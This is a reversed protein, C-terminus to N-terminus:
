AYAAEAAVRPKLDPGAPLHRGPLDVDVTTGKKEVSAIRLNGGHLHVIKRAIALGLGFGRQGDGRDKTTFYPTFVRDLNERSIGTGADAVKVRIWDRSAETRPLRTLQIQISAAQPSADIANSILNGLLRQIMVPDMEIVTPSLGELRFEVGKKAARPEMLDVAARITEDIRCPKAELRHTRSFFLAENIYSRITEVNRLAVPLLEETADRSMLGQASLQLYTQAPTLLNNLDHALGRSMRGLLEQEQAALIQNKLRVQNLLLGLNRVLEVLLRLDEPTYPDGDNKPGILLLGCLQKEYFLPFCFEPDFEQLQERAARELELEGPMSYTTKYDLYWPHAGQFYRFLPCDPALGPVPVRPREPRSHVVAFAQTTEELAIVAFSRIGVERTFLRDLEALVSDPDPHARLGNTFAQMKEHYAFRDGLIRRELRDSGWGFFRPFFVSTIFGNAVLVVLLTMFSWGGLRDPAALWCLGLLFFGCLFYFGLHVVHSAAKGLKLHIDLLHHQLVGYGVIAGFVIAAIGGTPYYTITTFPYQFRGLLPMLDNSGFLALVVIAALLARLRIQHLPPLPRQKLYLTVFITAVIVNFLAMYAKLAFGGRVFYGLNHYPVYPIAAIYWNTFLVTLAILFTLAYFLRLLGPWVVRAVVFCLHCMSVPAFVVGLHIVRAWFLAQNDHGEPLRHIVFTGLNWTTICIGWLFYVRNVERRWDRSLVFLALAFHFIAACLSSAQYFTM